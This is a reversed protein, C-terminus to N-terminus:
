AISSILIINSKNNLKPILNYILRYQAILNINVYKNFLKPTLKKYDNIPIFITDSANLIIGDLNSKNQKNVKDISSNSYM